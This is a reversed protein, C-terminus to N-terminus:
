KIYNKIFENAVKVTNDWSYQKAEKIAENRMKSYKQKDKFLSIASKALSSPNQDVLIGNENNKIIDQIGQTKYAVAPTGVFGAEPITLGFGEHLSAVILLHSRSLLEFKKDETVFGHFIVSSQLNNKVLKQKLKKVFQPDGSGVIWLKLSPIESKIIRFAEIMDLTGKQINLRGLSIITPNKEKSLVKASRPTTIGMPLTVINKKNYGEKILDNYTSPSIVMTPTNKYISLYFKELVRWCIAIPYPFINFFLKKAVECTLAITKNPAYVASFFPLWHVEDIILDTKNKFKFLYYFFAYIHVNWWKGRRIFKVGDITEIKKGGSFSSCFQTINHGSLVWRKAIERTLLEAGGANPNQPDRWNLILINM